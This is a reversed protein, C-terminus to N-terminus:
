ASVIIIITRYCFALTLFPCRMLKSRQGQNTTTPNGPFALIPLAQYVPIQPPLNPPYTLMIHTYFNIPKHQQNTTNIPVTNNPQFSYYPPEKTYFFCKYSFLRQRWIKARLYGIHKFGNKDKVCRKLNTFWCHQKKYFDYLNELYKVSKHYM